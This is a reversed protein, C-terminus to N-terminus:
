NLQKKITQIFKDKHVVVNRKILCKSYEEVVKEIPYKEILKHLRMDHQIMKFPDLKIFYDKLYVLLMSNFNQYESRENKFHQFRDNQVLYLNKMDSQETIELNTDKTVYYYKNSFNIMFKEIQNDPVNAEIFCNVYKDINVTSLHFFRYDEFNYYDFNIIDIVEDQKRLYENRNCM